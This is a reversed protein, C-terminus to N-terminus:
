EVTEDLLDYEPIHYQLSIIQEVVGEGRCTECKEYSASFKLLVMKAGGCQPCLILSLAGTYKNLNNNQNVNPIRIM